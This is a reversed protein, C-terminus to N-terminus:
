KLVIITEDRDPGVSIIRTKVGAEKEIFSIIKKLQQPLENVNRLKRITTQWGSFTKYIPRCYKLVEKDPIAINIKTGKNLILEGVHYKPGTYEYAVCIKIEKCLDMVDIKTFIVDPCSFQVSYRLFPLDLWGTRRPRGTTAGYEYGAMRVAVGLKFEDTQDLLLDGFKDKEMKKTIGSTGCWKASKLGGMETPFAGEGVRTMYPAKIIGFTMDVDNEHLGVGKALGAITCDSATVFPYTGHDISLLNGQAGELLIKKKGLNKRLYTDTDTINNKFIKGYRTYEKVIADINFINKNDYFRGCGLHEHQLIQKIVKKDYQNLLVIKERLNRILKEKFIKPNLLDNVTLGIRAYHDEYVPGIGRGTTGIKNLGAKSEKVRDLLLHQPLVLHADKSFFINKNSCGSAKLLSMEHEVVAPDFAVGSGIINIKGKSDYLIGSPILHFIYEKDKLRITHGANAGGTGRAIIDAWSGFFDVFKGKGTDGWQNCVVAITKKGKLLESTKKFLNTKLM